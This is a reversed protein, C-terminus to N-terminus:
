QVHHFKKNYDLILGETFKFYPVPIVQVNNGKEALKRELAKTQTEEWNSQPKLQLRVEIGGETERLKFHGTVLPPFQHDAYLEERVTDSSLGAVSNTNRSEIAILPLKLRPLLEEKGMKQLIEKLRTASIITGRDKANYRILPIKLYPSTMTIIIERDKNTELYTRHPYYHFLMPTMDGTEGFLARKFDGDTEALRRLRITDATEHFLNLDLEAVGLSSAIVRKVPWKALDIGLLTAMYTRYTEPFSDEGAVLSVKSSPWDIGQKTGEEVLYKLFFAEGVVIIQDFQAGFKKIVAHAMDDRVSVEALVTANTHVKVGMPLCNIILTKRHTLDLVHDLAMDILRATNELNKALNIGFSFVGSFGSSTLITKADALNGDRALRLIPQEAFIEKGLIPLKFFDKTSTISSSDIGRSQLLERYYPMRLARRFAAIAEKKGAKELVEPEVRELYGLLKSRYWAEYRNALHPSFRKLLPFLDITM